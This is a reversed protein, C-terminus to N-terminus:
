FYLIGDYKISQYRWIEKPYYGWIFVMTSLHRYTLMAELLPKTGDPMVQALTSGCRYWWIAYSPWLANVSIVIQCIVKSPASNLLHRIKCSKHKLGLCFPSWKASSMKLHMKKFSFSQLRILIESFNTRLPGILLIGANTWIIAQPQRPWLGNDTGIVTLKGVCRWESEILKSM